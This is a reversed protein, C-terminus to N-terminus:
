FRADVCATQNGNYDSLQATLAGALTGGDYIDEDFRLICSSNAFDSSAAGTTGANIFFRQPYDLTCAYTGAALREGIGATAGFGLAAYTTGDYLVVSLNGNYM